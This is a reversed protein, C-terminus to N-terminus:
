LWDLIVLDVLNTLLEDNVECAPKGYHEVWRLLLTEILTMSGLDRTDYFVGESSQNCCALDIDTWSHM